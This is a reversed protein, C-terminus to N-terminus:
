GNNIVWKLKSENVLEHCMGCKDSPNIKGLENGDLSIKRAESTTKNVREYCKPYDKNCIDIVSRYIEEKVDEYPDEIFQDRSFRKLSQSCYYDERQRSFHDFLRYDKKLEALDSIKGDSYECYVNILEKIYQLKQEEDGIVVPPKETKPRKPIGGGFRYKFWKTQEYQDLLKIPEIDKVISFDFKEIYSKLASDLIIEKEKTIGNRCNKDWNSILGKNINKNGDIYTRLKQGVGQSAIIYYNVPIKYDNIFTYYCLKGFEIWYESPTLPANYHKCQYIDSKSRTSDYYAIIDRGKDGAGGLLYVSEYKNQLYSYAWENVMEEFQKDSFTKLRDIPAINMGFIIDGNEPGSPVILKNIDM